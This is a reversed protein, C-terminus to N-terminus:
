VKVALRKAEELFRIIEDLSIGIGNEVQSVIQNTRPVKRTYNALDVGVIEGDMNFVPGGSMGPLSSHQTLFSTFKKDFLMGPKVYDMLITPQWYQRVASVDFLGTVGNVNKQINPFPYGCLGISSGINPLSSAFDLAPLIDKEVKGLALDLSEDKYLVEISTPTKNNFKVFPINGLHGLKYGKPNAAIVHAATLFHGDNDIFFGTGLVRMSQPGSSFIPFISGKVKQIAKEYM